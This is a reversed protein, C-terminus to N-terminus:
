KPLFNARDLIQTNVQDLLWAYGRDGFIAKKNEETCELEKGSVAFGEWETIMACVADIKEERTDLATRTVKGTKAIQKFVENLSADAVRQYADSDAGKIKVKLPLKENTELHRITYAIGEDARKATSLTSLDFMESM